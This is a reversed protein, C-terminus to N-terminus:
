GIQEQIAGHIVGGEGTRIHQKGAGKMSQRVYEVRGQNGAIMEQIRESGGLITQLERALDLNAELRKALQKALQKQADEDEPDDAVVAAAGTVAPDNGLHGTIKKWLEQAKEWAAEGVKEAMVDTLKGAGQMLLPMFPGVVTTVATAIGAIDIM